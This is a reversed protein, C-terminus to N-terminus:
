YVDKELISSTIKNENNKAHSATFIHKWPPEHPEPHLKPILTMRKWASTRPKIKGGRNGM